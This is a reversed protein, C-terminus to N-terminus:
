RRIEILEFVVNRKNIFFAVQRGNWVSITVPTIQRGLSDEKIKKLAEKLDEVEFCIHYFGGGKKSFSAIPSDPSAPELLEILADRSQVAGVVVKQEKDLKPVDFGPAIQFGLKLYFDYETKIDSVVQSFHHFKFDM